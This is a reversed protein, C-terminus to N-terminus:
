FQKRERRTGLSPGDDSAPRNHGLFEVPLGEVLPGLFLTLVQSAKSISRILEDTANSVSIKCISAMPLWMM